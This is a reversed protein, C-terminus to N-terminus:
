STENKKEIKDIAKIQNMIASIVRKIELPYGVRIMGDDTSQIMVYNYLDVLEARTNCKYLREEVRKIFGETWENKTSTAFAIILCVFGIACGFAFIAAFLPSQAFLAIFLSIIGILGAITSSLPREVWELINKQEEVM